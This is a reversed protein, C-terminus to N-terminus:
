AKMKWVGLNSGQAKVKVVFGSPLLFEVKM